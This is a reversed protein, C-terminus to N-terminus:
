ISRSIWKTDGSLFSCRNIGRVQIVQHHRWLARMIVWLGYHLFPVEMCSHIAVHTYGNSFPIFINQITYLHESHHVACLREHQWHYLQVVTHWHHSWDISDLRTMGVTRFPADCHLQKMYLAHVIITVTFLALVDCSCLIYMYFVCQLHKMALERASSLGCQM